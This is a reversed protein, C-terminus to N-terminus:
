LTVCIGVAQGGNAVCKLPSPCSTASTADCTLVCFMSTTFQRCEVPPFGAPSTGCDSTATCTKTCAYASVAGGGFGFKECVLPTGPCSMSSASCSVAYPSTASASDAADETAGSDVASGGTDTAAAADGNSGGDDNGHASVGADAGSDVAGIPGSGSSSSCAVVALTVALLGTSRTVRIKMLDGLNTASADTRRSM